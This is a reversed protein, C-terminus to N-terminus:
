GRGETASREEIIKREHYAMRDALLRQTREHREYFEDGLSRRIEEGTIKRRKRKM